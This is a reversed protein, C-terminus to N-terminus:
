GFVGQGANSLFACGRVDPSSSYCVALGAGAGENELFLCNHLNPSADECCVGGGLLATNARFICNSITPNSWNYCYIGGGANYLVESLCESGGQITMGDLVTEPGEGSHFVFGRHPTTSSGDCEIICEEASGSQSRITVAKGGCDLDRNGDGSFVGNGLEIIDGDQAAFIAEQITAFDGSGDAEIVFTDAQTPGVLVIALVTLLITWRM